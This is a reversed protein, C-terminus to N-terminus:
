CCVLDRCPSSSIRHLARRDSVCYRVPADRQLAVHPRGAADQAVMLGVYPHGNGDLEGDTVAAVNGVMMLVLTLAFFLVIFRLKRSSVMM